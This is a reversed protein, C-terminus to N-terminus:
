PCLWGFVSMTTSTTPINRNRYPAAPTGRITTGRAAGCWGRDRGPGLFAAERSRSRGDSAKQWGGLLRGVETVMPDVHAYQGLTM